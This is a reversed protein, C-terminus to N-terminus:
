KFIIVPKDPPGGRAMWKYSKQTDSRGEAGMVQVTTEDIQLHFLRKRLCNSAYDAVLTVQYAEAIENLFAVMGREMEEVRTHKLNSWDLKIVPYRQEWDVKDAIYLGEFLDKRGEFLAQLTSV